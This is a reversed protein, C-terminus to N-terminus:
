SSTSRAMRWNDQAFRYAAEYFLNVYKSPTSMSADALRLENLENLFHHFQLGRGADGKLFSGIGAGFQKPDLVRGTDSTGAKLLKTHDVLQVQGSDDDMASVWTLFKECYVAVGELQRQYHRPDKVTEGPRFSFHSRYWPDDISAHVRSLTERGLTAFAYSFATMTAVRLKFEAQMAALRDQYRTVPLAKWDV